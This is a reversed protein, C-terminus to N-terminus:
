ELTVSLTPNNSSKNQMQQPMKAGADSIEGVLPKLAFPKPSNDPKPEVSVVAKYGGTLDLKNGDVFDQGPFPPTGKSGASPGGMDSDAGDVGTFTGTTTPGDSNAVWGEYQWGDPLTPLNLGPTKNGNMPKIFWIGNKYTASDSSPAALIFTGSASSFDTGLAPGGAITATTSGGDLTGALYKTKSPGDDSEQKPEITLVFKGGKRAKKALDGDVEFNYESKGDEVSFRGTSKPSGDVVLWGEWVYDGGLSPLSSGSLTLTSKSTKDGDTQEEDMPGCAALVGLSLITALAFLTRKADIDM